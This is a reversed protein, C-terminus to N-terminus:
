FVMKVYTYGKNGYVSLSILNRKINPICNSDFSTEITDDFLNIQTIDIDEMKCQSDNFVLVLSSSHIPEFLTFLYKHPCM